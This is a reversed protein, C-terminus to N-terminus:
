REYETIQAISNTHYFVSKIHSMLVLLDTNQYSLLGDIVIKSNQDVPQKTCVVPQKNQIFYFWALCSHFNQVDEVKGLVPRLWKHHEFVAM